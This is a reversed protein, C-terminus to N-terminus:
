FVAGEAVGELRPLAPELPSSSPYAKPTPELPLSSSAALVQIEDAQLPGAGRRGADGRELPRIQRETPVASGGGAGQEGCGSREYGGQCRLAHLPGTKLDEARYDEYAASIARAFEERTVKRQPNFQGDELALYGSSVAVNVLDDGSVDSIKVPDKLDLATSYALAHALETRTLGAKPNFNGRKDRLLMGRFVVAMVEKPYQSRELDRPISNESSSLDSLIPDFDMHVNRVAYGDVGLVSGYFGQTDTEERFTTRYGYGCNKNFRLYLGTAVKAANDVLGLTILRNVAFPQSLDTVLRNSAEYEDGSKILERKPNLTYEGSAPNYQDGSELYSFVLNKMSVGLPGDELTAKSADMITLSSTGLVELTGNAKVWLATNEDLGFGVKDKGDLLYRAMRAHRGQYTNFHQDVVGASFFGLGRSLTVGRGGLTSSMGFDLTDMPIGFSSPMVSAQISAGASSGGIVGGKAYVGRVATLVPSDQGGALFLARAIRAQDGGVFWVASSDQVQKVLDPNVNQVAYNKRDLDLVTVNETKLGLAVLDAKFRKSSSLSSSATPFIVVKANVGGALELYKNYVAANDTRLAGGVIMLNGVALASSSLLLGLTLLTSLPKFPLQQAKLM